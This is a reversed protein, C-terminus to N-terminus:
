NFVVVDFGTVFRLKDTPGIDEWRLRKELVKESTRKLGLLGFSLETDYRGDVTLYMTDDHCAIGRCWNPQRGFETEELRILDCVRCEV